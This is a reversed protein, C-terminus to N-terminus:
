PKNDTWSGYLPNPILFYDRGFLLDGTGNRRAAEQTTLPLDRVNDGVWLVFQHPRNWSAKVSGDPDKAWCATANGERVLRRRRDKDNRYGYRQWEASNKEKDIPRRGLICVNRRDDRLGLRVLNERAIEEYAADRNTIIALKGGSHLVHNMFEIAGPIAKAAGRQQWEKWRNEDYGLGLYENELQGLSNDFITEDGDLSVVWPTAKPPEARIADVRRTAQEYIFQAILPFEASRRYWRLGTTIQKPNDPKQNAELRLKAFDPILLEVSIPCHDSAPADDYTLEDFSNPKVQAFSAKDFILFDIFQSPNPQCYAQRDRAIPLMLDHEPDGPADIGKWFPGDTQLHRNFDGLLAFPMKDEFRGHVWKKLADRQQFLTACNDGSTAPAQECGPTLHVSLLRLPYGAEITVDVGRPLRNDGEVDLTGLDPNRTYPVSKRIAFGSRRLPEACGRPPAQDSNRALELSWAEPDFVRALAQESEVAQVAVVDANLRDAQRKLAQDDAPQRARCGNRDAAALHELNWSALKIARDAFATHSAFCIAGILALAQLLSRV